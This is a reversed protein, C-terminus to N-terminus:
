AAAGEEGDMQGRAAVFYEYAAMFDEVAIENIVVLQAAAMAAPHVDPAEPGVPGRSFPVVKNAADMHLLHPTSPIPLKPAQGPWLAMMVRPLVEHTGMGLPKNCITM